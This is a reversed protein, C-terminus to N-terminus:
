RNLRLARPVVEWTAPLRGPQEGDVDLLVDAETEIRVKKARFTKTGALKTHSGGYLAAGKTVFDSLGFGSWVTIDFLGDDLAAQPCVWMGGGFYQGNGVAVVTVTHSEFPGDDLSIRVPRDAYKLLGRLSALKFSLFGGLAKSSHNAEDVIVGSVGCSAVNIFHRMEPKGSHALYRVRGVDSAVIDARGLRQAAENLDSSWGLARRFDGGTGRPIVGFVAEPHVPREGEFFGNVVENITGDGGVAVVRDYGRDLAERCLTTAEGMRGTFAHDFNGIANRVAAAVEPFRKGTRGAASQPNVVLFTKLDSM